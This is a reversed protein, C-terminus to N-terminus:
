GYLPQSNKREGVRFPKEEHWNESNEILGSKKVRICVQTLTDVFDRSDSSPYSICAVVFKEAWRRSTTFIPPQGPVWVRGNEMIDSSLHVRADKDGYLRPRVPTAQIGARSLDPILDSGSSQDEVLILDPARRNRNITPVEYNDDLYDFALRQAMKRLEPYNMRRRFASLLIMSDLGSDPEKFIGWTTCASYAASEKKSTATDWSQIIMSCKPPEKRNWIRFWERKIINGGDAIPKQQYLAAWRRPTTSPQDRITELREKPYEEPWLAEGEKRGLQDQKEALAPLSLVTWKEGGQKEATLLRGALDDLHWRTQVIIIVGGKKMRPYLDSGYWDWLRNRVAPSDADEASAIPDDILSLNSRRGTINGGVGAANYEAGSTLEWRGSARSDDSVAVKPFLQKHENTGILNRVRKGWTNSFDETHTAAIISHDPFKSLYYAGFHRSIYFSKAHGPPMFVMLRTIERRCCKDLYESLLRSHQPAITHSVYEVYDVFHERAARRKLLERALEETTPENISM